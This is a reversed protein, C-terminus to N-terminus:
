KRYGRETTRIIVSRCSFRLGSKLFIVFFIAYNGGEMGVNGAFKSVIPLSVSHTKFFANEWIARDGTRISRTPVTYIFIYPLGPSYPVPAPHSMSTKLMKGKYKKFLKKVM